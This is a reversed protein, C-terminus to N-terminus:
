PFQRKLVSLPSFDIESLTFFDFFVWIFFIMNKERLVFLKKENEFIKYIKLSKKFFIRVKQNKVFERNIADTYLISCNKIIIESTQKSYNAWFIIFIMLIEDLMYYIWVVLWWGGIGGTWFFGFMWCFFIFCRIRFRFLLCWIGLFCFFVCLVAGRTHHQHRFIYFLM